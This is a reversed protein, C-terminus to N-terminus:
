HEVLLVPLAALILVQGPAGPIGVLGSLAGLLAVLAPFHILIRGALRDWGLRDVLLTVFVSLSVALLVLNVTAVAVVALFVALLAEMTLIAPHNPNLAALSNVFGTGKGPTDSGAPAATVFFHARRALGFVLLGLASLFLLSFQLATLQNITRTAVAIPLEALFHVYGGLAVLLNLLVFQWGVIVSTGPSDGYFAHFLFSSALLFPLFLTSLSWQLWEAVADAKEVLTVRKSGIFPVVAKVTYELDATFNRFHQRRWASLNSPIGHGCVVEPVFRGYYGQRRM